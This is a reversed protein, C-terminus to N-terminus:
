SVLDNRTEHPPPTRLRPRRHPRHHTLRVRRPNRRPDRASHDRHQEQGHEPRARGPQPRARVAASPDTHHTGAAPRARPPRDVSERPPIPRQGPRGRDQRGRNRTPAPGARPNDARHEPEGRDPVAHSNQQNPSPAPSPSPRGRGTWPGSQHATRKQPSCAAPGPRTSWASRLRATHVEWGQCSLSKVKTTAWAARRTTAPEDRHEDFPDPPGPSPGCLRLLLRYSSDSQYEVDFLTKVADRIAPVDWFGARVGSRSLPRALTRGEPRPRTGGRESEGCARGPGLVDQHGALRGAM